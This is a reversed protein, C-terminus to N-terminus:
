RQTSNNSRLRTSPSPPDVTPSPSSKRLFHYDSSDDSTISDTRVRSSHAHSSAPPASPATTEIHELGPLKKYFQNCCVFNSGRLVNLAVVVTSGGTAITRLISHVLIPLTYAQLFAVFPLVLVLGMLILMYFRSEYYHRKYDENIADLREANANTNKLQKYTEKAMKAPYIEDFYLNIAVGSLGALWAVFSGLPFLASPICFAAIAIVFLIFTGLNAADEWPHTGYKQEIFIYEENEKNKANGVYRIARNIAKCIYIIPDSLPTVTNALITFKGFVFALKAMTAVSLYAPVAVILIHILIGINALNALIEAIKVSIQWFNTKNKWAIFSEKWSVSSDSPTDHSQVLIDIDSAAVL